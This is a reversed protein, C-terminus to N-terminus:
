CPSAWKKPWKLPVARPSTRRAHTWPPATTVSAGAGPPSEKACDCFTVAGTKSDFGIVDPEGGTTEMAQLSKLANPHNELRTQVDTWSIDPHRNPNQEFRAKLIQILNDQEQKEHTRTDTPSRKSM